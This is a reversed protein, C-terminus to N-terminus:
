PTRFLSVSNRGISLPTLLMRPTTIRTSLAYHPNFRGHITLSDNLVYIRHRPGDRLPIEAMCESAILWSYMEDLLTAQSADLPPSFLYNQTERFRFFDQTSPPTDLTRTLAARDVPRLAEMRQSFFELMGQMVKVPRGVMLRAYQRPPLWPHNRVALVDPVNKLHPDYVIADQHPLQTEQTDFFRELAGGDTGTIIGEGSPVIGDIAIIPISRFFDPIGPNAQVAESLLHYQDPLEICQSFHADGPLLPLPTIQFREPDRESFAM